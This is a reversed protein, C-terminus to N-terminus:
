KMQISGSVTVRLTGKGAEVPLAAEAQVGRAEMALMYPRPPSPQEGTQISVERLGYSSFGFASAIEAARAKFREIARAQVQSEAQDKQAKSLSFAVRAVTLGQIRGATASIRAFDRGELVLEATGQWASIRGDRGHRPALSFSGTRVNMADPQAAGRAESLAAELATKLQTQVAQADAGERVTSLTLSMWDNPLETSASASLQVVNQAPAPPLPQAVGAAAAACLAAGAIIQQLTNRM